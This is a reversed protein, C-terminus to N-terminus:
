PIADCGQTWLSSLTGEYTQGGLSALLITLYTHVGHIDVDGEMVRTCRALTFFHVARLIYESLGFRQPSRHDHTGRDLPQRHYEETASDQGEQICASSPVSRDVVVTFAFQKRAHCENTARLILGCISQLDTQDPHGSKAILECIAAHLM